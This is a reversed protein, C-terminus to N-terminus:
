YSAQKNTESLTIKMAYTSSVKNNEGLCSYM